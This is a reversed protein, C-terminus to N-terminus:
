PESEPCTQCLAGAAHGRVREQAWLALGAGIVLMVGSALQGPAFREGFIAHSLGLVAFPTIQLVASPVAVGIRQIATYYCVHALAICIWGSLAVLVIVRFPVNVVDGPRGFLVAIVALGLTTELSIAAFATRSDVDRMTLRVAVAYLSWLGTATMVMVAGVITTRVSLDAAVVGAVFGPKFILVGVAGLLGALLGCWFRVSRVLRREDVFVLMSLVTSWIVTTRALLAMVGADLYYLSWAWFTQMVVNPIAPALARKWITGPVRGAMQRAVLLPLWLLMAFLYRYVNQSFPDFYGTFYKIWIPTSSWCLLTGLIATTAVPDIGGTRGPQTSM